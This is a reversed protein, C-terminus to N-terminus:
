LFSDTESPLLKIGLLYVCSICLYNSMGFPLVKRDNILLAINGAAIYQRIYECTREYRNSLALHRRKGMEISLEYINLLCFM